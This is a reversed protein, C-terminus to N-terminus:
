FRFTEGPDSFLRPRCRWRWGSLRSSPPACVRGARDIWDPCSIFQAPRIKERRRGKRGFRGPTGPASPSLPELLPCIDEKQCYLVTRNRSLGDPKREPVCPAHEPDRQSGPVIKEPAPGEAVKKRDQDHTKPLTRRRDFIHGPVRSVEPIMFHCLRKSICFTTWYGFKVPRM